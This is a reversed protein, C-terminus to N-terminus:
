GFCYIKGNLQGVFLRGNSIALILVPSDDLRLTESIEGSEKRLVYLTGNITGFTIKKDAAAITSSIPSETEIKWLLEGKKADLCYLIKETSFFVRDYAVTPTTYVSECTFEWVNEGTKMDLCMIGEETGVFIRKGDLSLSSSSWGMLIKWIMDGTQADLCYVYGSEDNVYVNGDCYAPFFPATGDTYFEWIFGGTEGNLCVIRKMKRESETVTGDHDQVYDIFGKFNSSIVLYKDFAVFSPGLSVEEVKWLLDGTKSDFCSIGSTGSVYVKQEIIASFASDSSTVRWLPRGTSVDLACVHGGGAVILPEGNVLSTLGVHDKHTVWSQKLPEPMQSLSFGTHKPDGQFM